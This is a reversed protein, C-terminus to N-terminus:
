SGLSLTSRKSHSYGCTRRNIFLGPISNSRQTCRAKGTIFDGPTSSLWGSIFGVVCGRVWSGVAHVDDVHFADALAIPVRGHQMLQVQAQAFAFHQAQEPVVARALGGAHFQHETQELGTFPQDPHEASQGTIRLNPAQQTIQRLVHGEIRLHAAQLRQTMEGSEFACRGCLYVHQQLFDAQRPRRMSPDLGVGLSHALGLRQRMGKSYTKVRRHAAGALGVEELLVDVQAPAAGKLRAFHRLTELGSMQPYFTVNEPLYGLLRRVQPDSPTRGFVRVQGESAQLLGLVLKMSTTKGAGNHGFLGLVEGEGLSLNLQHLVTTYGYRQSVGEMDIVNM